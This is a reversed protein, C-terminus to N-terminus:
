MVLEVPFGRQKLLEVQKVDTFEFMKTDRSYQVGMEKLENWVDGLRFPLRIPTNLSIRIIQAPRPVSTPVSAPKLTFAEGTALLDMRVKIEDVTIPEAFESSHTEGDDFVISFKKVKKM